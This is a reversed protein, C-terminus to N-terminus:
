GLLYLVAELGSFRISNEAQAQVKPKAKFAIGAGAASMMVLDNAGDGVAITNSMPIEYQAALRTLIDAKAQADVIDGLIKGTLKGGHVELTNSFAHDFEFLTKIYDAFFTFGGSAIAIKWGKAKLETIVSSFGPMFPLRERISLLAFLEVGKLCAVRHYLSDIFAIEGQMARETVAAVEEGVGALKAIEDVCEMEILTSDMDFVVLGPQQLIGKPQLFIDICLQECLAKIKLELIEIHNVKCTINVVAKDFSHHYVNATISVNKLEIPLETLVREISMFNLGTAALVIVRESALSASSEIARAQASSDQKSGKQNPLGQVELEDEPRIDQMSSWHYVTNLQDNDTQNINSQDQDSKGHSSQTVRLENNRGLYRAFKITSLDTIIDVALLYL